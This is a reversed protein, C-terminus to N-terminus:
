SHPGDGELSQDAPSADPESAGAPDPTEGIPESADSTEAAILRWPDDFLFQNVKTAPDQICTVRFDDYEPREVVYLWFLERRRQAEKFQFSTMSVGFLMWIDATSKVEIYRLIQGDAGRSEVDYGPNQHAMETPIRGQKREFDIVRAVGARDVASNAGNDQENNGNLGPGPLVYSRLRSRTKGRIDHGGDAGGGGAEADHGAPPPLPETGNSTGGVDVVTGIAVGTPGRELRPVGVADLQRDSSESSVASLVLALNAALLGPLTEPAIARALERAVGPWIEEAPPRLYLTNDDKVFVADITSARASMRFTSLELEVELGPAATVQLDALCAQLRDPWTADFSDLVRGIPAERAILREKLGTDPYANGVELIRVTTAGSLDRVGAARMAGWIGEPRRVLQRQLDAPFYDAYGPLDDFLIRAPETLVGRADRVVKEGAFRDFYGEAIVENALAAALLRWCERYVLLDQSDDSIPDNYAGFARAMEFLIATADRYDPHERVELADLLSVYSRFGEGVTRRYTGFRHEGRFVVEPSVWEGSSLYISPRNRLTTIAPDSARDNLARYVDKDVPHNSESCALLHAVIQSPTPASHVGLWTLFDGALVQQPQPFALFRAQSSFLHRQFTAYLESPKYWVATDESAPLWALERLGVYRDWSQTREKFRTALYQVIAGIRGVQSSSPPLQTVTRV